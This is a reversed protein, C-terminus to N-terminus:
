ARAQGLAPLDGSQAEPRAGRLLQHVRMAADRRRPRALTKLAWDPDALSQRAAGVIDCVGDTSGAKRWRSITSAARASSPRKSGQERTASRPDRADAGANRGFPGRADSIYQPMCEYGSPGTYPYAAANVAPRAADDFKGGRSTSLFDMGARAFALASRNPTRSKTAARSANRPSIAAASSSAKASRRARRPSCRSRCACGTRSRGATATTARTPARSSRPWRIPTPTICNSATSAPPKPAGRRPPSCLRCRRRCIRPYAASRSRHRARSLWVDASRIRARTLAQKWGAEGLALLGRACRAERADAADVARRHADTIALFREFYKLPDPPPPHRPFRHDPHVARTEGGSAREVAEVLRTLGEVYRDHGIRLLPGSPVDRVGTAEVVIAGPRGRAFREYWAVVADTVVGEETARWPVMAPVWTRQALTLRGGHLPSFLRSRARRRARRCAASARSSIRIREPPRWM